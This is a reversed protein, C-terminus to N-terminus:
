CSTINTSFHYKPTNKELESRYYNQDTLNFNSLSKYSYLAEYSSKPKMSIRIGWFIEFNTKQCDRSHKSLSPPHSLACIYCSKQVNQDKFNVYLFLYHHNNNKRNSEHKSLICVLYSHLFDSFHPAMLKCTIHLTNKLFEPGHHNQDTFYLNVLFKLFDLM